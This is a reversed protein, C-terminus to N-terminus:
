SGLIQLNRKLFDRAIKIKEIMLASDKANPNKDPHVAILAARAKKFVDDYNHIKNPDLKLIQMSNFLKRGLETGLLAGSSGDASVWKDRPSRILNIVGFLEITHAMVQNAVIYCSIRSLIALIRLPGCLCILGITYIAASSLLLNRKEPFKEAATGVMLLGTLIGVPILIVTSLHIVGFGGLPSAYTALASLATASLTTIKQSRSLQDFDTKAQKNTKEYGARFTETFNIKM